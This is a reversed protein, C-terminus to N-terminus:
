HGVPAAIGERRALYSADRLTIVLGLSVAMLGAGIWYPLALNIGQVPIALLPGLIRALASM